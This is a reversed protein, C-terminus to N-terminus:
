FSVQFTDTQRDTQAPPHQRPTLGNTRIIMNKIQNKFTTIWLPNQIIWEIYARGERIDESIIFKVIVEYAYEECSRYYPQECQTRRAVRLAEETHRMWLQRVENWSPLRALVEDAYSYLTPLENYAVVPETGPARTEAKKCYEKLKNWDRAIELHVGPFMKKVAAFRHQTRLLFYGQYHQRNTKPCIETNWGWEAIAPPIAQFLRWQEEYATFQWRTSKDTM